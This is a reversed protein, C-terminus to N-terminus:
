ISWSVLSSRATQVTWQNFSTQGNFTSWGTSVSQAVKRPQGKVTVGDSGNWGLQESQATLVM